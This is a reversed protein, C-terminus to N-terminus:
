PDQNTRRGQQLPLAALFRLARMSPMFLYAGGRVTVFRPLPATRWQRSEGPITMHSSPEGVRDNAGIIPDKNDNLGGFRPNNCWTQQVFEFQSRISANVCFFHIGRVRGDDVLAVIAARCAASTPDALVTPDFLAPGFVRARRLLRHAESMSLSEAAPYPKIDNRPNTRRIHAGLPCSVGDPDDRYFFDNRDRQRSDDANASLMLATGSPWRGVLHAALWVMRCPDVDGGTRDAECRLFQWFGAVDQQLKRYVVYSGNLGLDRLRSVHYPNDLSPLIANADLEAPVVPTPPVNGYHNLYGLIFEGTPTGEGSIGAISPQGIGDHFGFPEYDGDPRYGSQMSGPLEVVGGAAEALLRRQSECASELASASVAHIIVLAHIPPQTTGGLEWEAPDSEQTDGLIRSRHERAIGEQFEAPFTCLDPSPVGLASLGDITFAINLAVSPKLKEGSATKPWPRATTVAPAVRELWRQARRADHFQVFLYAAHSLHGYGSTIFGQVDALVDDPLRAASMTM